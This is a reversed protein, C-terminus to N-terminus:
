AESLTQKLLLELEALADEGGSRTAERVM